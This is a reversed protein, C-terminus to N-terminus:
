SIGPYLRETSRAFPSSNEPNVADTIEEPEAAIGVHAFLGLLLWVCVLVRKM